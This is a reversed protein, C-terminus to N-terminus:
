GVCAGDKARVTLACRARSASARGRVVCYFIFPGKMKKGGGYFKLLLMVMTISNINVVATIAWTDDKARPSEEEWVCDNM